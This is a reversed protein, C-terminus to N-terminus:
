TQLKDSDTDTVRLVRCIVSSPRAVTACTRTICTRRQAATCSIRVMIDCLSSLCPGTLINRICPSLNKHGVIRLGPM